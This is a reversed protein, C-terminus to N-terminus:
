KYKCFLRIFMYCYDSCHVLDDIYGCGFLHRISHEVIKYAAAAVVLAVHEMRHRSHNRWCCDSCHLRVMEVVSLGVAALSDLMAVSDVQQRGKNLDENWHTGDALAWDFNHTRMLGNRDVVFAFRKGMHMTRQFPGVTRPDYDMEM